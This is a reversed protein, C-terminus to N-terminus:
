HATAGRQGDHGRQLHQSGGADADGIGAQDIHGRQQDARQHVDREPGGSFTIAGVGLPGFDGNTTSGEAGDVMLEGGSLITNGSYTSQGALTLTGDKVTLTGTGFIVGRLTQAQAPADFVLSAMNSISQNAAGPFLGSTKLVLAGGTIAVTGAPSNPVIVGASWYVSGPGDVQVITPSFAGNDPYLYSHVIWDGTGAFDYTYGSGGGAQWEVCSGISAANTSNNTFIHIGGAPRGFGKLRNASDDGLAFAGAGPDVTIYNIGVGASVSVSSVITVSKTQNSTLHLNIGSSGYGTNPLSTSGYTIVLNTSTRGDWTAFDWLSPDTYGSGNNGNPLGNPDWNAANALNTGDGAGTWTYTTQGLM